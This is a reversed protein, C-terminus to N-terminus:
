LTKIFDKFASHFNLHDQVSYKFISEKEGFHIKTGGYLYFPPIKPVVDNAYTYFNCNPVRKDFSEKGKKNWIRPGAFNVCYLEKPNKNYQIDVAVLNSVGGGMSFGTVLVRDSDILSLVKERIRLWGKLYGSHAKIKTNPDAYPPKIKWSTLLFTFNTLWDKLDISGQINVIQLNDPNKSIFVDIGSIEDRIHIDSISWASTYATEIIHKPIM